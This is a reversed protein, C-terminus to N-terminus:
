SASLYTITQAPSSTSSGIGAIAISSSTLTLYTLYTNGPVAYLCPVNVTGGQPAPLSLGTFSAPLSNTTMAPLYITVIRNVKSYYATYAGITLTNTSVAGGFFTNFITQLQTDINGIAQWFWCLWRFILNLYGNMSRRSPMTNWPFGTVNFGSYLTTPAASVFHGSGDNAPTPTDAIVPSVPNGPLGTNALPDDPVTYAGRPCTTGQAPFTLNTISNYAM